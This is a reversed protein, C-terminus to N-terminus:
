RSATELETGQAIDLLRALMDPEQAGAVAYRDDLIYCPVGSVGLRHFRANETEIASIGADSKLYAAVESRFFGCIEAIDCLVDIDGIDEGRLFYAQFIAEVVAAQRTFDASFHILRHSNVSSPTRRIAEFNFGIGEAEGAQQAAGQIRQIRYNSGFKRELYVQRDLGTSPMEPNLLFPRWRVEARVEPRLFLAREFRHKGIYCWPCVTDFIVDIRM